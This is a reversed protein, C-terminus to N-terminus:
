LPPLQPDSLSLVNVACGPLLLGHVTVCGKQEETFHEKHQVMRGFHNKGKIKELKEESIKSTNALCFQTKYHM